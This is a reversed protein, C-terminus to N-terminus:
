RRKTLGSSFLRYLDKLEAPQLLLSFIFYIAAGVSAAAGLTMSTTFFPRGLDFARGIVPLALFIVVGTAVTMLGTVGFSQLVRCFEAHRLAKPVLLLLLVAKVVWSLSDALALGAHGMRGVLSFSLLIQVGLRVLGMTVPTQTDKVSYYVYSLVNSLSYASLGIAYFLVAQGTIRVSEEGFAGREFVLRVLPEHLVLIGMSIPLVIWFMGRLLKCLKKGIEDYNEQAASTSFSPFLVTTLSSVILQFIVYTLRRGYSLASLSGAPLMSAFVRDVTRGLVDGGTGVLLPISMSAMRRLTPNKWDAAFRYYARKEWLIPVQLLAQAVTGLVVSIVLGHIGMLPILFFMCLIVVLNDATGVLGPWGFRQYSHFFGSLLKSLGAFVLSIMMYRTLKAALASTEQTFGPAVLLALYPAIFWGILALLLLFVTSTNILISADKWASREGRTALTQTFFPIVVVQIPSRIWVFILSMITTAVLFADMQESTGFQAAAILDRLLGSFKALIGVVIVLVSSRFIKRSFSVRNAQERNTKANTETHL